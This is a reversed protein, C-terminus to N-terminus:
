LSTRSWWSAYHPARATTWISPIPSSSYAPRSSSHLSWRPRACPCSGKAQDGYALTHWFITRAVYSTVPPLGPYKQADLRQALALEDGVAAVDSKVAPAYQGQGLKVNIETRIPGFGPDMHHTHISFADPPQIRWLHHVTRALLRLMGRTRQFTSLSATKETLMELLKPHLPYSRAFQDRLEPDTADAPLAERNANWVQSYAAIVSQAAGLDVTEFLRARLVNPTEVEETPNLPTTSRVAVSEAESM